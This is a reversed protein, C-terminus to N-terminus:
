FSDTDSSGSVNDGAFIQYSGESEGQMPPLPMRYENQVIHTPADMWRGINRIARLRPRVAGFKPRTKIHGDPAINDLAEMIMSQSARM